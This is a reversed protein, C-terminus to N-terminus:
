AEKPREDTSEKGSETEIVLQSNSNSASTVSVSSTSITPSQGEEPISLFTTTKGTNVSQNVVEKRKKSGGLSTEKQLSLFIETKASKLKKKLNSKTITPSESM